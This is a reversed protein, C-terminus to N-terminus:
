VTADVVLTYRSQGLAHMLSQLTTVLHAVTTASALNGTVTQITAGTQGFFGVKDSDGGLVVDGKADLLNTIEAKGTTKFDGTVLAQWTANHDGVRFTETSDANKFILDPTASNLAGISFLGAAANHRVFIAQDNGPNPIVTLTGASISANGGTVSLNGGDLTLGAHGTMAGGFVSTTGVTLSNLSAAATATLGRVVADGVATLNGGIDVNGTIDVSGGVTENGGIHVDADLNATGGVELTGVLVTSGDVHLDGGIGVSGAVGLSGSIVLDDITAGDLVSLGTGSGSNAVQLMAEGDAGSGTWRLPGSSGGNAGVIFFDTQDGTTFSGSDSGLIPRAVSTTAM